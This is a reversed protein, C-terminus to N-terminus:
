LGAPLGNQLHIPSSLAGRMSIGRKTSFRFLRTGKRSGSRMFTIVHRYYLAEYPTVIGGDPDRLSTPRYIASTCVGSRIEANWHRIKVRFRCAQFAMWGAIELGGDIRVQSGGSRSVRLKEANQTTPGIAGARRLAGLNKSPYFSFVFGADGTHRCNQGRIQKRPKPRADEIRFIIPEAAFELIPDM